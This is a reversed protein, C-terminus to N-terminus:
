EALHHRVAYAALEANSRVNMKEFVRTRYTAVTKVSLTLETSIDRTSKGAAIRCLVQYERDSLREHPMRGVDRGMYGALREAVRDSVYRGGDKVKRIAGLLESPASDKTLYGAAGARFARVAFQDESHMTLVLVPLDVRERKIQKLLELGDTGPMSLDLLVLDLPVQRIAALTQDADNAECAIGIDPTTALIQRLGQRIIPHDDAILVRTM